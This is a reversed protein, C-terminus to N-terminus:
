NVEIKGPEGFGNFVPFYMLEAKVPPMHFEGKFRPNFKLTLQNSGARLHRYYLHVHTSRNEFYAGRLYRFSTEDFTFGAPVPIQIMVYEADSVAEVDLELVAPKGATVRGSKDEPTDWSLSIRFRSSDVSIHERYVKRSIGLYIPNETEVQINLISSDNKWQRISQAELDHMHGNVSLSGGGTFSRADDMLLLRIASSLEVTNLGQLKYSMLMHDILRNVQKGNGRIELYRAMLYSNSIRGNWSFAHDREVYTGGLMDLQMLAEVRATDYQLSNRECIIAHKILDSNSLSDTNLSQLFYDYALQKNGESLVYLLYIREHVPLHFLQSELYSHYIRRGNFGYHNKEAYYIAEQVYGSIVPDSEQGSWWGWGGDPNQSRSLEALIRQVKKQERFKEGREERFKELSVLAKLKSALQENCEYPIAIM